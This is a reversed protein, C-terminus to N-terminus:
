RFIRYMLFKGKEGEYTVYVVKKTKCLAKMYIQILGRDNLGFGDWFLVTDDFLGKSIKESGLKDSIVDLSKELDNDVYRINNQYLITACVLILSLAMYLQM